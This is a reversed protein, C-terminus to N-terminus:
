NIAVPTLPNILVLKGSTASAIHDVRTLSTLTAFSSRVLAQIVEYFFSLFTQVPTFLGCECLFGWIPHQQALKKVPQLM